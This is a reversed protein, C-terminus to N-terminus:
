LLLLKFRARFFAHPSAQVWHESAAPPSECLSHPTFAIPLRPEWDDLDSDEDDEEEDSDETSDTAGLPSSMAPAEAMGTMSSLTNSLQEQSGHRM